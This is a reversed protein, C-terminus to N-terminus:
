NVEAASRQCLGGKVNQKTYLENTFNQKEKNTEDSLQTKNKRTQRTVSSCFWLFFTPRPPQALNSFVWKEYNKGCVSRHLRQVTTSFFHFRTEKQQGPADLLQILVSAHNKKTKRQKDGVVTQSSPTWKTLWADQDAHPSHSTRATIYVGRNKKPLKNALWVTKNLPLQKPKKEALAAWLGDGSRYRRGDKEGEFRRM